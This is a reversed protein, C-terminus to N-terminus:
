CSSSKVPGRGDPDHDTTEIETNMILALAEMREELKGVGVEADIVVKYTNGERGESVIRYSNVFGKSESLIQDMKLEYNEVETYSKIMVGIKEEVASRLANEIAKDRAIDVVGNNITAVGTARVM